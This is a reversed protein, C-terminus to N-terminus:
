PAPLVQILTADELALELFCQKENDFVSVKVGDFVENGGSLHAEFIVRTGVEIGEWSAVTDATIGAFAYEALFQYGRRVSVRISPMDFGIGAAYEEHTKIDTVIGTWRVRSNGYKKSLVSDNLGDDFDQAVSSVFVNWDSNWDYMEM